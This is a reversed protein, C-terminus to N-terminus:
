VSALATRGVRARVAGVLALASPDHEEAPRCAVRALWSGSQPSANTVRLRAQQLSSGGTSAVIDLVDGRELPLITWLVLDGGDVNATTVPVRTGRPLRPSEVIRGSLRVPSDANADARVCESAGTPRLSTTPFPHLRSCVVTAPMVWVGAPDRWELMVPREAALQVDPAAIVLAGSEVDDVRGGYRVGEVVISVRSNVGPAVVPPPSSPRRRLKMNVRYADAAVLM